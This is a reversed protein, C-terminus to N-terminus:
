PAAKARKPELAASSSWGASAKGFELTACTTCGNVKCTRFGCMHLESLHNEDLGLLEPILLAEREPLPPHLTRTASISPFVVSTVPSPLTTMRSITTGFDTVRGGQNVSRALNRSGELRTPGVFFGRGAYAVEGVGSLPSQM